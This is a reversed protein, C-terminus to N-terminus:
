IVPAWTANDHAFLVLVPDFEQLREIWEPVKATGDSGQQRLELGYQARAYETAGGVAQGALVVRGADTEVVLSQHGPTHGPTPVIRIGKALDAEGGHLEYTADPFDYLDVIPYAEDRHAADFEVQQAFIPMGPFRPNGGCHDLHLHCNVVVQIDGTTVGASALAEDLPRRVPHYLDEVEEHGEAIGTDLLVLGDPHDILYGCVVVKEGARPDGDDPITFHGFLVRRIGDLPVM